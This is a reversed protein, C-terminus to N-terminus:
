AKLGYIDNYTKDTSLIFYSLIYFNLNLNGNVLEQRKGGTNIHMHISRREIGVFSFLM